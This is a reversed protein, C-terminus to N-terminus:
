NESDSVTVEIKVERGTVITPTSEVHRKLEDHYEREHKFYEMISQRSAYESEPLIRLWAELMNMFDEKTATGAVVLDHGKSVIDADESDDYVAKLLDHFTPFNDRTYDVGEAPQEAVPDPLEVESLPPEDLESDIAAMDVISIELERHDMELFDIEPSKPKLSTGNELRKPELSVSRTVRGLHKTGIMNRQSISEPSGTLEPLEELSSKFRRLDWQCYVFVGAGIVVGVVALLQAIRHATFDVRTNM